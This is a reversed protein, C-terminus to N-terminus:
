AWTMHKTSEGSTPGPIISPGEPGEPGAGETEALPGVLAKSPVKEFAGVGTNIPLCLEFLPAMMPPTMPPIAAIGM